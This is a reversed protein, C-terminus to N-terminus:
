FMFNADGGFAIITKSTGKRAQIRLFYHQMQKLTSQIFVALLAQDFQVGPVLEHCELFTTYLQGVMGIDEETKLANFIRLSAQLWLQEIKERPHNALVWSKILLPIM